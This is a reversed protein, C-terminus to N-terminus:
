QQHRTVPLVAHGRAFEAAQEALHMIQGHQALMIGSVVGAIKGMRDLASHLGQAGADKASGSNQQNVRWPFDLMQGCRQIVAGSWASVFCLQWMALMSFCCELLRSIFLKHAEGVVLLRLGRSFGPMVCGRPLGNNELILLGRRPARAPLQHVGDPREQEQPKQHVVRQGIGVQEGKEERDNRTQKKDPNEDDEMVASMARKEFRFQGIIHHTEDGAQEREGGIVLPAPLMGNVVCACTSVVILAENRLLSMAKLLM